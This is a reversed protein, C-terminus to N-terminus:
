CHESAFLSPSSQISCVNELFGISVITVGGNDAGALVKRYLEVPHWAREALAQKGWRLTGGSWHFAVKSAYEGSKYFWADFYSDSTIPRRLGIPVEPYSYHALIASAALASYSSQTNINV